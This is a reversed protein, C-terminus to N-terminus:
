QVSFAALASSLATSGYISMARSLKCLKLNSIIPVSSKDKIMIEVFEFFSPMIPISRIDAVLETAYADGFNSSM